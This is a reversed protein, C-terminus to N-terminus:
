RGVGLSSVGTIVCMSLTKTHCVRLLLLLRHLHWEHTGRRKELSYLRSSRPLSASRLYARSFSRSLTAPTASPQQISLAVRCSLATGRSHSSRSSIRLVCLRAM